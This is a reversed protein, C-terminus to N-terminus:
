SGGFCILRDAIQHAEHLQTLGSLCWSQNTISSSREYRKAEEANLVGRRLAASICVVSDLQYQEILKSWSSPLDLEDQPTVISSSANYVSDQYFFLRVIEHQRELVAKAFCLARRSSPHYPASFLAISFKM